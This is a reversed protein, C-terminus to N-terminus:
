KLASVGRERHLRGSPRPFTWLVSPDTRGPLGPVGRRRRWPAPFPGPPEASPCAATLMAVEDESVQCRELRSEVDELEVRHLHGLFLVDVADSRVDPELGLTTLFQGVATLPDGVSRDPRV